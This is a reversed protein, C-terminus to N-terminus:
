ARDLRYAAFKQEGVKIFRTEIRFGRQKLQHVRAALRFVGFKDLAVLSSISRGTQMYKLLTECQSVASM